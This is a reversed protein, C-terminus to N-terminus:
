RSAVEEYIATMKAVMADISFSEKVRRRGCDAMRASADRDSLVENIARALETRDGPAVGRGCDGLLEPLGGDSYAVVPTGAAMAELGVFPFADRGGGSADPVSPIVVVDAGAILALADNREGLLRVSRNLGLEDVREQVRAAYEPTTPDEGGILAFTTDPSGELVAPATEVLELQGKWPHIRGVLAVIPGDGSTAAALTARGAERDVEVAPLGNHVVEVKSAFEPGFTRTVVEAVGVIKTSRRGVLHALRGDSTFDHKLWVVPVGTGRTAIGAVLAAKLNNAHVVDPRATLPGRRLRWASRLIGTAHRSTDIVQPEYGLTTLREVFPGEELCVIDKDWDDPLEGMLIELYREAGGAKAHSSVFLIKLASM